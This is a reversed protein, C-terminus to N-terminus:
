DSCEDLKGIYPFLQAEGEKRRSSGTSISCFSNCVSYELDWRGFCRIGCDRSSRASRSLDRALWELRRSTVEGLNLQSPLREAQEKGV